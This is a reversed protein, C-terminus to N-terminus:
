HEPTSGHDGDGYEGRVAAPILDHFARAADFLEGLQEPEMRKRYALGHRGLVEFEYAAGPGTLWQMMAADILKRACQADPCSVHRRRSFEAGEFEVPYSTAIRPGPSEIREFFREVPKFVTDIPDLLLRDAWNKSQVILHALRLEHQWVVVSWREDSRGGPPDPIVRLARYDAGAVPLGRWRGHLMNAWEPHTVFGFLFFDFCAFDFTPESAFALGHAAAFAELAALERASRRWGANKTLRM